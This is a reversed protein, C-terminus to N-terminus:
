YYTYSQDQSQSNKNNLVVGLVKAKVHELNQLAKVVVQRKVKGSHIVFLVGDCMTSLIQSDTVSITPPSDILILDFDQELQKLLEIMKRSALLESPNPPIPGSSILSLNPIDTSVIIEELSNQNALINTLGVRNSKMFIHHLTPKRLDADIVLVKKNEQAYAVALNAITTTKGESPQSSTILIKKTERDISSFTINTRLTKYAESKHSKPNLNTILTYKNKSSQVSM